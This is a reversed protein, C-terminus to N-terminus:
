RATTRVSEPTNVRVPSETSATASRPSGLGDTGVRSYRNGAMSMAAKETSATRRDENKALSPMLIKDHTGEAVADINECWRIFVRLISLQTVM